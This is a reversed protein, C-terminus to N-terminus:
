LTQYRLTQSETYKQLSYNTKSHLFLLFLWQGRTSLITPARHLEVLSIRLFISLRSSISAPYFFLSKNIWQKSFAVSSGQTALYKVEEEEEEEEGAGGRLTVREFVLGYICCHGKWRHSRCVASIYCKEGRRCNKVLVMFSTFSWCYCHIAYQASHFQRCAFSLWPCFILHAINPDSIM